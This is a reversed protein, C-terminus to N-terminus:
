LWPVIMDENLTEAFMITFESFFYTYISILFKTTLTNM